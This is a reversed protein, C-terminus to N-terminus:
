IIQLSRLLSAPLLDEMSDDEIQMQNIELMLQYLEERAEWNINERDQPQCGKCDSCSCVKSIENPVPQAEDTLKLGDPTTAAPGFYPSMVATGHRNYSSKSSVEHFNIDTAELMEERSLHWDEQVGEETVANTTGTMPLLPSAVGTQTEWDTQIVATPAPLLTTSLPAQLPDPAASTTRDLPAQLPLPEVPRHMESGVPHDSEQEKNTMFNPMPIHPPINTDWHIGRSGADRAKPQDRPEQRGFFFVRGTTQQASWPLGPPEGGQSAAQPPGPHPYLPLPKQLLPAERVAQQGLPVSEGPLDAAAVPFPSDESLPDLLPPPGRKGMRPHEASPEPATALISELEVEELDDGIAPLDGFSLRVYLPYNVRRPRTVGIEEEIEDRYEAGYCTAIPKDEDDDSIVDDEEKDEEEEEEEVAALGKVEPKSTDPAADEPAARPEGKDEVAVGATVADDEIDSGATLPIDQARELYPGLEAFPRAENVIYMRILSGWSELHGHVSMLISQSAEQKAFRSMPVSVSYTGVTMTLRGPIYGMAAHTMFEIDKEKYGFNRDLCELLIVYPKIMEYPMTIVPIREDALDVNDFISLKLDDSLQADLIDSRLEPLFVEATSRAALIKALFKNTNQETAYALGDLITTVMYTEGTYEYVYLVDTRFHSQCYENISAMFSRGNPARDLMIMNICHRVEVPLSRPEPPAQLRGSGPRGTTM